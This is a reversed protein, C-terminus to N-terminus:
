QTWKRGVANKKQEHVRLMRPHFQTQWLGRFMRHRWIGPVALCSAFLEGTVTESSSDLQIRGDKIGSGSEDQCEGQTTRTGTDNAAVLAAVLSPDFSLDVCSPRNYMYFASGVKVHSVHSDCEEGTCSLTENLVVTAKNTCDRALTLSGSVETVGVFHYEAGQSTLSTESCCVDIM